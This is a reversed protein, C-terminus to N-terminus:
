ASRIPKVARLVYVVDDVVNWAHIAHYLKVEEARSEWEPTFVLITNISEFDAKIAYHDVKAQRLWTQDFYKMSLNTMARRHTPDQWARGSTYYPCTIRVLGGPIMIRYLEEMFAILGDRRVIQGNEISLLDGLHEVYHACHAEYVSGTEIPWPYCTLDHVIDADGARDIGLFGSKKQQGCAIDLRITGPPMDPLVFDRDNTISQAGTKGAMGNETATKTEM